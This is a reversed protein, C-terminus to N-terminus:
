AACGPLRQGMGRLQPQRGSEPTEYSRAHPTAGPQYWAEMDTLDAVLDEPMKRSAAQSPHM